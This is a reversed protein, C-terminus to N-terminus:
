VNLPGSSHGPGLFQTSRPVRKMVSHFTLALPCLQPLLQQPLLLPKDATVCGAVAPTRPSRLEPPQARSPSRAPILRTPPPPVLHGSSCLMRFGSPFASPPPSPLVGVVPQNRIAQPSWPAIGTGPWIWLGALGPGLAGSAVEVGLNRAATGGDWAVPDQLLKPFDCLVADQARLMGPRNTTSNM